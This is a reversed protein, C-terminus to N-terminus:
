ATVALWQLLERNVADPQELTSLHGCDAVISLRSGAIRAAMAEHEAVPTVPDQAGCLVLTPVQVRALDDHSDPRALMARQQNRQGSAGISRAM